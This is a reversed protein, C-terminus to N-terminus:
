SQPSLSQLVKPKMKTSEGEKKLSVGAKVWSEVRKKTVSLKNILDEM